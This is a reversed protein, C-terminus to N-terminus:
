QARNATSYGTESPSSTVNVGYFEFRAGGDDSSTVSLDWGHGGAIEDVLALGLGTGGASSEGPTFVEGRKSEPIGPGDDEVYFGTDLLGVRITADTGAHEIANRFLNEFAEQLFRGDAVIVAGGGDTHLTADATGVNSWAGSVVADFSVPSPDIADPGLRALSLVDDIIEDMRDLADTAPELHEVEGTERALEVRGRAVTMPNRLDHSVVSTFTELRENQEVLRQDREALEQERQDRFRSWQVLGVLLTISGVLMTAEKGLFELVPPYTIFEDLVDMVGYLAFLTLGIGFLNKIRLPQRIGELVFLMWFVFLLFLSDTVTELGIDLSSVPYLLVQGVAFVLCLLFTGALRKRPGIRHM